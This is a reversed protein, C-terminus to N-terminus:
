GIWDDAHSMAIIFDTCFKPGKGVLDGCEKFVVVWPENHIGTPGIFAERHNGQRVLKNEHVRWPGTQAVGYTTEAWSHIGAELVKEHFAHAEVIADLKTHHLTSYPYPGSNWHGLTWGWKTDEPPKSVWRYIPRPLDTPFLTLIEQLWLYVEEQCTATFIDECGELVAMLDLNNKEDVTVTIKQHDSFCHTWSWWARSFSVGVLLDGFVERLAKEFLRQPAYETSM